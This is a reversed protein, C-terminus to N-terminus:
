CYNKSNEYTEIKLNKGNNKKFLYRWLIRYKGYNIKQLSISFRILQKISFHVNDAVKYNPAPFFLTKLMKIKRSYEEERDFLVKFYKKIVSMEPGEEIYLIDKNKMEILLQKLYENRIISFTMGKEESEMFYADGFVIDAGKAFPDNCLLCRRNKFYVGFGTAWTKRFPTKKSIKQSDNILEVKGPWGSGRYKISTWDKINLNEFSM